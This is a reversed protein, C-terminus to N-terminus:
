ELRFFRRCIRDAGGIPWTARSRQFILVPIAVAFADDVIALDVVGYRLPQAEKLAKDAIREVRQM